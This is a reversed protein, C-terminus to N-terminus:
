GIQMVETFERGDSSFYFGTSARCGLSGPDRQEICEYYVGGAGGSLRYVFRGIERSYTGFEQELVFLNSGYRKVTQGNKEEVLESYGTLYFVEERAEPGALVFDKVDTLLLAPKGSSSIMYLDGSQTLYYASSDAAFAIKGDMLRGSLEVTNVKGDDFVSETMMLTGDDTEYILRSADNSIALISGSISVSSPKLDADILVVITVGDNDEAGFVATQAFSDERISEYFVTYGSMLIGTHATKTEKFFEIGEAEILQSAGTGSVYIRAEDPSILIASTNDRSTILRIQEGGSGASGTFLTVSQGVSVVSMTLLDSQGTITYVESTDDTLAVVFQDPGISREEATESFVRAEIQANEDLVSYGVSTGSPSIAFISLARLEVTAKSQDKTGYLVLRGGSAEKLEDRYVIASGDGCLAFDSVRGAVETVQSGDCFYLVPYEQGEPIMLFAVRDHDLSFSVPAVSDSLMGPLVLSIGSGTILVQGGASLVTLEESYPEPVPTPSATETPETINAPDTAVTISSFANDEIGERLGNGSLALSFATLIGASAVILIVCISIILVSRSMQKYRMINKLRRKVHDADGSFSMLTPPYNPEPAASYDMFDLIAVAYGKRGDENLKAAVAEDCANECALTVQNRIIWAFPNFWHLVAVIEAITKTLLDKREIHLLEHMLAFCVDQRSEAHSPMVVTPRFIGFVFPSPIAADRLKIKSRIEEPIAFIWREDSPVSGSLIMDRFSFYRIMKWAALVVVGLLWCAFVLTGITIEGEFFEGSVPRNSFEVYKKLSTVIRENNGWLDFDPRIMGILWYVPIILLLMAIIWGTQFWVGTFFTRGAWAVILMLLAIVMAAIGMFVLNDVIWYVM